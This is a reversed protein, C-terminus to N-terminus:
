AIMPETRLRARESAESAVARVRKEEFDNM